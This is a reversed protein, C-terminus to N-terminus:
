RPPAASATIERILDGIASDLREKRQWTELLAFTPDSMKAMIKHHLAESEDLKRKLESVQGENM